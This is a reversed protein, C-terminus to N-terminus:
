LAELTTLLEQMDPITWRKLATARLKLSTYLPEGLYTKVFDSLELPKRHSTFHCGACLCLLNDLDWRVSRYTRSYIHACQLKEYDATNCM